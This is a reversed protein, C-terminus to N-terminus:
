LPVREVVYATRQQPACRAPLTCRVRFGRGYTPLVALDGGQESLLRQSVALGLGLGGTPAGTVGEQVLIEESGPSAGPGDDCVEVVIQDGQRRGRVEVHSGPAHRACNVLLNTVVQAVANRQAWAPLPEDAVLTIKHGAARRLAVLERLTVLLDVSTARRPSVPEPPRTLLAHLRALETLVASRLTVADDGAVQEIPRDLLHAVGALGALGNALEHDRERALAAAREVHRVAEHLEGRQQEHVTLLATVAGRLGRLAAALTAIAGALWLGTAVRSPETFGVRVLVEHLQAATMVALGLGVRWRASDRHRLGSRVAALAAVGWGVVVGGRLSAEQPLVALPVRGGVVAAIVTLGLGALGALWPACRGLRVPAVGAVLLLLAVGVHAAALAAFLAPNAYLAPPGLLGLPLCVLAFLGLATGIWALRGDRQGPGEAAAIVAVGALVAVTLATAAIHVTHSDLAQAAIGVSAALGVAVVVAVDLGFAVRHHSRYAELTARVTVVAM